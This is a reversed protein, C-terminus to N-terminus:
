NKAARVEGSRDFKELPHSMGLDYNVGTGCRGGLQSVVDPIRQM